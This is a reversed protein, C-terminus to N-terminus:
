VIQLVLSRGYFVFIWIKTQNREANFNLDKNMQKFHRFDNWLISIEAQKLGLKWLVLEMRESYLDSHM